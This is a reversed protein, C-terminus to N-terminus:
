LDEMRKIIKIIYNMDDVTYRQDCPIPLINDSLQYETDTACLDEKVNPWLVPIYIKEDQLKKRLFVGDKVYYPYM